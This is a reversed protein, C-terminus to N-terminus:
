NGLVLKVSYLCASGEMWKLIYVGKPWAGVAVEQDWSGPGAKHQYVNQGLENIISLTGAPRSGKMSIQLMDTAPIPYATIPIESATQEQVALPWYEIRSVFIDGRGRHTNHTGTTFQISSTYGVLAFGSGLPAVGAPYDRLLGGVVNSALQSGVQDLLILKTDTGGIHDPSTHTHARYLTASVLYGGDPAKVIHMSPSEHGNDGYTKTWIVNGATDLKLVWIDSSLTTSNPNVPVMLDFVSVEGLMMITQDREDWIAGTVWDSGSSGYSRSWLRNGATDLKILICNDMSPIGNQWSTDTDIDHNKSSSGGMVYYADQGELVWSLNTEFGTGGLVKVWQKNGASDTKVVFWDQTFPSNAYSFPVDGGALTSAGIMLFGNDRTQILSHPLENGPGGYCQQWEKNGQADLKLLWYDATRTQGHNGIVDRDNSLTRSLVAFGGDQTQVVSAARDQFSGGYVKVWSPQMNSDLKCIIIDEKSSEISTDPPHMPVDGDFSGTAGVVLLGKDQTAIVAYAQENSSGGIFNTHVVRLEQAIAPLLAAMFLALLFLKLVFPSRGTHNM